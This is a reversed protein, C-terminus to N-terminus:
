ALGEKERWLAVTLLTWLAYKEDQRGERHDRWLKRAGDPSIYPALVDAERDLLRDALARLDTRLLRNMPINFGQKKTGAVDAPGGLKRLARRLTRKTESGKILATNHIQGALDMVRRDLFPVRVELSNAMSARDVKVLMDSPLYYRQDALMARDIVDGNASAYAQAYGTFPDAGALGSLAPGYVQRQKWRPLYHRWATHPEAQALGAAFRYAKEQLPIRAESVGSAGHLGQALQMWVASPMLGGVAHALKTARYTPYGGFFEDGGDGSLAVTVHRRVVGSLRYVALASSDALQGDVADVVAKLDAEADAGMPLDVWVIERGGSRALSQALASEDHSAESFRVSFLPVDRDRPLSLSVLSSDIGGSQLVGVPVDSVLQEDVVRAFVELFAEAAEDPDRHPFPGRTPRWFQHEEMGDADITLITGPSLQRVGELLTRDPPPYGMALMHALDPASMTRSTAPDVLLAKVESAFALQGPSEAIYLPKTGIGDRALVLRKRRRDWLAIAFIGEIRNFAELGWAAYAAPIVETDCTTRRQFGIERGLEAAIEKDNYLEGNFMVVSGDVGHFPQDGEPGLERIALRRHGLAIPGDNWYAEGDPGRHAIRRTMRQVLTLDADRGDTRLLGAIGCM